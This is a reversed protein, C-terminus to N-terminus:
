EGINLVIKAPRTNQYAFLAESSHSYPDELDKNQHAPSASKLYINGRPGLTQGHFHAPVAHHRMDPRSQQPQHSISHPQSTLQGPHQSPRPKHRHMIPTPHQDIQHHGDSITGRRDTRDVGQAV